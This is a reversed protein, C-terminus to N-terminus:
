GASLNSESLQFTQGPFTSAPAFHVGLHAMINFDM